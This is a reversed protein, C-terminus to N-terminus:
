GKRKVDQDVGEVKDAGADAMKEADEVPASHFAFRHGRGDLYQRIRDALEKDIQTAVGKVLRVGDVILSGSPGLYSVLEKEIKKM